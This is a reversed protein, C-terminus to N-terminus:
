VTIPDQRFRMHDRSYSVTVTTDENTAVHEDCLQQFWPQRAGRSGAHSDSVSASPAVCLLTRMAVSSQTQSVSLGAGLRVDGLVCLSYVISLSYVTFKTFRRGREPAWHPCSEIGEREKLARLSDTRRWSM